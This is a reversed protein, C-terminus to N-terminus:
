KLFSERPMTPFLLDESAKRIVSSKVSTGSSPLRSSLSPSQFLDLAPPSDSFSSTTSSPSDILRGEDTVWPHVKLESLTIRQSPDKELMREICHKASASVLTQWNAPFQPPSDAIKQYMGYVTDAEFPLSGFLFVFLTVGMSWLDTARGSFPRQGKCMEPAMFAASGATSQLMDDDGEFLTSVGFDAVKLTGDAALLLNEPKIDRHVVRNKHIHHVAAILDRFYKRALGVPIPNSKLEGAVVPGESVYEMVLYLKQKTPNDIVEKLKVVNPHNLKKLVEIEKKVQEWQDSDGKEGGRNVLKRKKLLAKNLIKMAYVTQDSTDVCVKVKGFSGKGLCDGLVYQNVMKKGETTRKLVATVHFDSATSATPAPALLPSDLHAGNGSCCCCGM